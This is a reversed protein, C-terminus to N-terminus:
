ARRGTSDPLAVVDIEEARAARALPRDATALQDGPRATALAICDALSLESQRRRYHRRRLEAARWAIAGDAAAVTLAEDLVPGFAAELEPMPRGHVRGLQDLAEALNVASVNCSGGRLIAEVEPAAPEDLALAILAFADLVVAM